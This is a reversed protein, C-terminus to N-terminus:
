NDRYRVPKVINRSSKRVVPNSQESCNEIPVQLQQNIKSKNTKPSANVQSDASSNPIRSIETADSNYLDEVTRSWCPNDDETYDQRIHFRNRRFVGGDEGKIIYSRPQPGVQIITGQKWPKKMKHKFWVKANQHLVPLVTAHKNAYKNQIIQRKRLAERAREVDFIPKLQDPHSPLFTRLKRGMLLEAPSQMDKAPQIRYDLLVVYLDKGEDAAKTLSNKVTQVAREIQGNARPFHPPTVHHKIGWERFFNTMLNSNFPPGGDSVLDEPIGHTAYISKMVTIVSQATTSNLPKLEVYKSLYDIMLLHEKGKLCFFDCAVKQWPRGPIEPNILIEKQNERQYKQCIICKSVYEEVDRNINPWYFYEKAKIKSSVVGKHSLHLLKLIEKRYKVPVVLRQGRCIIREKTSYLEEKCHWYPQAAIKTKRKEPWGNNIHFLVDQMEPDDTTMKAIEEWKTPSAQTLLNIRVTAEQGLVEDFKDTTSQARSLADAIVLNKGPVYELQINYKNLRLLMRQLRPSITDYPKKSLGLIPKHDTQVTVIRGYTYYNFHELGYIVAMLEKEIQAYRQQTQTLSVSGYAVPQSEQLLVAGLGNKSADVSVTVEKNKDFYKLCPSKMIAQKILEFDRETNADWIWVSDKKLLQRLNHTLNSLHPTFKALYTVMGLFRQVDEKCNPTAFQEIARIKKPDPKIGEDSLVHGLYNVSTQSLQTKLENFKLNAKRAKLLTRRLLRCHEEVTSSGLAIDDFYPNIDEDDEYIEDMAKQFEEPASNLGFPLVLFRYRGWPTCFTTLYSSKEDLPLQWFGNKADLITFVKGGQLKTVLADATPIPYHPRQIAENLPRPDLCIRLKKPSDIVVMNSVWETPEEVKSIIGAEVMNNLEEKVKNHIALPVKRPAAVHPVSNEKLKIKVIRNLRGTGTFVDAFEKLILEPTEIPSKYIMNLRQILGLERCAELGLIPCSNLSTVLFKYTKRYKKTQCNLYCEGLIPVRNDCVCNTEKMDLENVSKLEGIYITESNECNEEIANVRRAAVNKQKNRQTRCMKAWHNRGDCNRCKTGYAPCKKKEHIKGCQKCNVENKQNNKSQNRYNRFNKLANVSLKENMVSAQVKSNEATKCESVIEQLTKAKKSTERILREQLAKDLLGQIIKDRLMRDQSEGYNCEVVANRLRSYYDTFKEGQEQKIELFKFSAFIENQYDLFYKDFEQLVQQLTVGECGDNPKLDFARLQKKLEEGCLHRFLATKTKEPA